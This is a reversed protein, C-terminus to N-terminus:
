VSIGSDNSIGRLKPANLRLAPVSKKDRLYQAMLDWIPEGGRERSEESVAAWGAVKYRRDAEIQRGNLQMGSIRRGMGASPECSYQLGGVRVM